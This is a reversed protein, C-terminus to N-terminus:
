AQLQVNTDVYLRNIRLKNGNIIEGLMLSLEPDTQRHLVVESVVPM